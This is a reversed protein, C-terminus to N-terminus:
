CGCCYFLYCFSVVIVVDVLVIVIDQLQRGVGRINMTLGVFPNMFIQTSLNASVEIVGPRVVSAM